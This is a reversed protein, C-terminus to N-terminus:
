KAVSGAQYYDIVTHKVGSDLALPILWTLNEILPLKALRSVPYWAVREDTLSRLKYSGMAAFFWVDGDQVKLLAFERWKKIDVGAEEKCERRMAELPTEGRDIKGGIGNLKGAQWRPHTKKILAIERGGRRFVLGAVWRHRKM